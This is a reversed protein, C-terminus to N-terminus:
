PALEDNNIAAIAANMDRFYDGHYHAVNDDSLGTVVDVRWPTEPFEASSAASIIYLNDKHWLTLPSTM